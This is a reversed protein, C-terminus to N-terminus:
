LERGRIQRWLDVRRWDREPEFLRRRSDHFGVILNIGMLLFFYVFGNSLKTELSDTMQHRLYYICVPIIRHFPAGKYTLPKGTTQGIGKEGVHHFVNNFPRTNTLWCTRSTGMTNFPSCFLLSCDLSTVQAFLAFTRPLRPSLM